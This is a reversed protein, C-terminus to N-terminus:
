RRIGLPLDAAIRCEGVRPHRRGANLDDAQRLTRAAPQIRGGGKEHDAKPCRRQHPDRRCRLPDLIEEGRAAGNETGLSHAAGGKRHIRPGRGDPRVGSDRPNATRDQRPPFIRHGAARHLRSCLRNRRSAAPRGAGRSVGGTRRDTGHSPPLGSRRRLPHRALTERGMRRLRRPLQPPTGGFLPALRPTRGARCRLSTRRRPPTRDTPRYTPKTREDIKNVSLLASDRGERGSFSESGDSVPLRVQRLEGGYRSSTARTSLM